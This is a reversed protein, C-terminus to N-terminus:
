VCRGHGVLIGDVATVASLSLMGFLTPIFYKRFLTCVDLTGLDQRKYVDEMVPLLYRGPYM